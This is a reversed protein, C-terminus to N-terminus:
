LFMKGWLVECIIFYLYLDKIVLCLFFTATPSYFSILIVSFFLLMKYFFIFWYLPVASIREWGLLSCIERHLKVKGFTFIPQDGFNCGEDLSNCYFLQFQQGHCFNTQNPLNWLVKKDIDESRRRPDMISLWGWPQQM